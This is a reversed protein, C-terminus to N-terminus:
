GSVDAAHLLQRFLKLTTDSLECEVRSELFVVTRTSEGWLLCVTSRPHNSGEWYSTHGLKLGGGPLLGRGEGRYAIKIVTVDCVM